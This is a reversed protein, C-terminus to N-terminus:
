NTGHLQVVVGDRYTARARIAIQHSTQREATFGSVEFHCTACRDLANDRQVLRCAGQSRRQIALGQPRQNRVKGEVVEGDDVIALFRKLLYELEVIKGIGSVDLLLDRPDSRHSRPPMEGPDRGFM